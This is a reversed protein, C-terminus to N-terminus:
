LLYEICHATSHQDNSSGRYSSNLSSLSPNVLGSVEWSLRVSVCAETGSITTMAEVVGGVVVWWLEGYLLNWAAKETLWDKVLGGM